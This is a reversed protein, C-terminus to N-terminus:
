FCRLCELRIAPIWDYYVGGNADTFNTCTITGYENTYTQNHIIQPYSGTRISYNYTENKYLVFTENFTINHWNGIYGNGPATVNLTSNWLSVYETHGGTGPCPYTYLTQLTITQNPTITGNHTGSISPYTGSGTDFVTEEITTNTTVSDSKAPDGQSTGTVKVERYNGGPHGVVKSVTLVVETSEDPALEVSYFDLWESWGSEAPPSLELILTDQTNGTNLITINYTASGGSPISKNTINCSLDVGFVRIDIFKTTANTAGDDDTVTLNVTYTGASAYSHTIIPETTNTINGDGFNWGYNIITGDPDTSNSSNFRVTQNIVPNRPSYSYSALPQQNLGVKWTWTQIATGNPNSVAASVNWPGEAASTNTYAAETVSENKQVETGNIHWSVNVIQNITINFTRTAGPVDRVRSPPYFSTITPPHSKSAEETNGYAGINLRQGNPAPENSYDSSPDGADICPSTVDDYVWTSGNKHGGTSKLHFDATASDVFLPDSCIDGTGATANNYSGLTNGWVNNYSHTINGALVNIGYGSNNTIINNSINLAVYRSEMKIGDDSNNYIVNNTVNIEAYGYVASYNTTWIGCGANYIRNNAITINHMGKYYFLIGAGGAGRITNNRVIVNSPSVTMRIGWRNGEFVNDYIEVYRSEVVMSAYSGGYNEVKNGIVYLYKTNRYIAIIARSGELTNTLVHINEAFSTAVDSYFITNNKYYINYSCRQHSQSSSVGVFTRAWSTDHMDEVTFNKVHTASIFTNRVSDSKKYTSTTSFGKFTVNEIFVDPGEILELDPIYFCPLNKNHHRVISDQTGTITVNSKNIIISYLAIGGGWIAFTGPPYLTDNVEHTGAALEIIGGEEPLNFIAKQISEGPNVTITVAEAECICFSMCALLLVFCILSPYLHNARQRQNRGEIIGEELFSEPAIDKKMSMINQM